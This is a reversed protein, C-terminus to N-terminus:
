KIKKLKNSKGFVTTELHIQTIFSIYSGTSEPWTRKQLESLGTLM